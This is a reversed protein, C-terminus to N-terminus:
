FDSVKCVWAGQHEELRCVRGCNKGIGYRGDKLGQVNRELAVGVM